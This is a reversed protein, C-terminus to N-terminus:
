IFDVIIVITKGYYFENNNFTLKNNSYSVVVDDIKRKSYLNENHYVRVDGVSWIKNYHEINIETNETYKFNVLLRRQYKSYVDESYVIEANSVVNDHEVLVDRKYEAKSVYNEELLNRVKNMLLKCTEELTELLIVKSIM